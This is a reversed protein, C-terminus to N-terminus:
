RESRNSKRKIVAGPEDSEAASGAYVEATCRQIVHWVRAVDQRTTKVNGISLRLTFKGNLVTHSLFAEGSSNIRELLERNIDESGNLRFCVLAFRVPAAVEFRADAEVWSALERAASMHERLIAAIGERGFYRMVFWLKLARFRRGLQVGYDMYNLARANGDTRLYEPVLSFARRLMDPRRTYLVSIDIPTFLWKHPNLLVSDARESGALVGRMEPVVAASGGYAADVHLWIKEREAIDAIEPVPDISATSTTGVTACICFPKHGARRDDLIAAELLDPRMRFEADVRIKRVNRQGVGLTIAGKEVSSHAQESTYLVADRLGGESRNEPFASERAAAIAHLTSISATDYIIGFLGEPLGLWKRLWDLTVQELETAAPCSKWLMGNVNLAATLMEGLIGPGSASVSFYAHFSPHNWHNVAPVIQERFDAFIRDIPEGQEPGSQPLADTLEGPHLSPSVPLARINALYDAIWDVIEHAARRFDEPPMDGTM